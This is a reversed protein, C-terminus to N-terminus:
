VNTPVPSKTSDSAHHGNASDGEGNHRDTEASSDVHSDAAVAPDLAAPPREGPYEAPGPGGARRARCATRYTIARGRRSEPTPNTRAAIRLAATGPTASGVAAGAFATRAALPVRRTPSLVVQQAATALIMGTM